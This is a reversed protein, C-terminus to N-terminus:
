GDCRFVDLVGRITFGLGDRHRLCEWLFSTAARLGHGKRHAEWWIPQWQDSEPYWGVGDCQGKCMTAQDPYAIGLAKYRDTLDSEWDPESM